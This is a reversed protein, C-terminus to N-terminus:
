SGAFMGAIDLVKYPGPTTGKYTTVFVNSTCITSKILSSGLASKDCSFTTGQGIPMPINKAAKMSSLVGAPSTLDASAAKAGGGAGRIFGLMSLYGVPTIGTANSSPAYTKMVAQYLKAEPNDGIPDGLDFLVAGDIGSDGLADLVPKSVCSSNVMKPVTSGSTQLATLISQCVTEDAVVITADPKRTLGAQIQSTADATGQPVTSLAFDVGVKAFLPKGVAGVAGVLQPNDPGFLTVKKFNNDKSYQAYGALSGVFGGGFFFANTGSLEPAASPSSGIWPIGANMVIPAALDARAPQGAVVAVVKEQVFQNACATASAGDAKDGCRVVEIPHGGLGGLHDNAYKAAAEAADGIAPQSVTTGGEVNFLGVKVPTGTAKNDPGLVSTDVSGSGGSGSSDSSSACGTAVVAVAAVAAALSLM